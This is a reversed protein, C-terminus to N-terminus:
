HNKTLIVNGFQKNQLYFTPNRSLLKLALTRLNDVLKAALIFHSIHYIVPSPTKTLQRCGIFDVFLL